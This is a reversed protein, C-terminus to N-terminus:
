ALAKRADEVTEVRYTGTGNDVIRCVTEFGESIDPEEDHLEWWMRKIVHEPVKRARLANRDMCVGLSTDMWFCEAIEFYGDTAALLNTRYERRCNTADFVVDGELLKEKVREFAVEFVRRNDKQVSADGFLEERIDDPCVSIWGREEFAKRISTKGSGPPGCLVALKSM